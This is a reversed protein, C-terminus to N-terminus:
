YTNRSMCFLHKYGFFVSKVLSFSTKFLLKNVRFQLSINLNFFITKIFLGLLM